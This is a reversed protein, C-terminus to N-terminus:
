KFFKRRKNHIEIEKASEHIEFGYIRPVYSRPAVPASFHPYRQLLLHPLTTGFAAGDIKRHKLIIPHYVDRCKSCFCKVTSKALKNHLGVPLLNNGECFVRPCQGFMGKKAHEAISRLGENSVVYKAHYLDYLDRATHEISRRATDKSDDLLTQSVFPLDTMLRIAEDVYPFFKANSSNYAAYVAHRTVPDDIFSTPVEVYIENGILACYKKVWSSSKEVCNVRSQFERTRSKSPAARALAAYESVILFFLFVLPQYIRKLRCLVKHSKKWDARDMSSSNSIEHCRQMLHVFVSKRTAWSQARSKWEHPLWRM